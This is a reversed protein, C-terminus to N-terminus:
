VENDAFADRLLKSQREFAQRPTRPEKMLSIEQTLLRTLHLTQTERRRSNRLYLPHDTNIYIITGEHSAEPGDPGFHDMCCTVGTEGLRVRHVVANPSLKRVRPKRKRSRRIEPPAPAPVQMSELAVVQESTSKDIPKLDRGRKTEPEVGGAGAVKPQIAGLSVPGFPSLDPNMALARQVRHFAEKVARRTQRREKRDSLRGLARQVEQMVAHIVQAFARYEDSDRVFGSRDATVPLFDAHVEGKVRAAERGWAEMGFLERRVTVQRVKVEIGMELTSALHAPVIVIEGHVPGHSTGELVPVRHGPLHLPILRRGNLFVAFDSARLPVSDLIRREVELPDFRRQLRSLIVTTGDGRGREPSLVRMPLDWRDSGREWEEKDFTVEAAFAGRQTRVTFRECASLTAFKGIGFQGVRLRGFRPSRPNLRKDPTGITFYERLGDLDMGLGNDSVEIADDRISVHVETADADYANNVLERILEISETYLREGITILHSKDVRIPLTTTEM